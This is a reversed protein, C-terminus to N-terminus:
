AMRKKLKSIILGLVPIHEYLLQGGDFYDRHWYVKQHFRLHTAGCVYLNDGHKLKPHAYNMSWTLMASDTDLWTDHFVFDCYLVNEYLSACYAQLAKLGNIQHFSDEFHIDDSYVAELLGNNVTERNLDQYLRKFRDICHQAESLVPNAEAISMNM